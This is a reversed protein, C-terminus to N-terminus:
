FMRKSCENWTSNHVPHERMFKILELEKVGRTVPVCDWISTLVSLKSTFIDLKSGNKTEIHISGIHFYFKIKFIINDIKWLSWKWLFPRLTFNIEFRLNLFNWIDNLFQFNMLKKIPCISRRSFPVDQYDVAWGVCSSLVAIKRSANM